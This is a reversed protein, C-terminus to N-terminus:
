YYIVAATTATSGGQRVYEHGYKCYKPVMNM